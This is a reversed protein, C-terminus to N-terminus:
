ILRGILYMTGLLSFSCMWRRDTYSPDFDLQELRENGGPKFEFTFQEDLNPNLLLLKITAGCTSECSNECKVLERSCISM